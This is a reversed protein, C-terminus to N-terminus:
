QQPVHQNDVLRMLRRDGGQTVVGDVRQRFARPVHHEEGGRRM